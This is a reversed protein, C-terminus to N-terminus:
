GRRKGNEGQHIISTRANPVYYATAENSKNEGGQGKRIGRRTPKQRPPLERTVAYRHVFYNRRAEPPLFKAASDGFFYWESLSIRRWPRFCLGSAGTVATTRQKSEYERAHPTYVRIKGAQAVVMQTLRTIKWEAKDCKNIGFKDHRVRGAIYGGQPQKKSRANSYM